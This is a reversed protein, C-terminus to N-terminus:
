KIFGEARLRAQLLSGIRPMQKEAWQQGVTAGEQLIVPMSVIVKKGLDTSYFALLGRIEDHTFHKAYITVYEEIISDPGQFLRAFESDLVEKIVELARDPMSPQAKKFGDVFQRTFISMFQNALQTSGTMELLKEVDARYSPDITQASVAPAQSLLAACLLPLILRYNLM